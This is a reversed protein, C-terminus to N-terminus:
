NSPRPAPLGLELFPKRETSMIGRLYRSALSRERAPGPAFSCSRPASGLVTRQRIGLLLRSGNGEHERTLPSILISVARAKAVACGAQGMSGTMLFRTCDRRSASPEVSSAHPLRTRVARSPPPASSASSPPPAAEGRAAGSRVGGASTPANRRDIATSPNRPMPGRVRQRQLGPGPEREHDPAVPGALRAEGFAHLHQEGAGAPAPLLAGLRPLLAPAVQM